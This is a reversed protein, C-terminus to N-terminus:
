KKFCASIPLQSFIVNESTSFFSPKLFLLIFLKNETANVDCFGSGLKFTYFYNGGLNISYGGDEYDNDEIFIAVLRM